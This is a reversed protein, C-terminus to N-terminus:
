IKRSNFPEIAKNYIKSAERKRHDKSSLSVKKKKILDSVFVDLEHMYINFLFPSLVSGQPISYKGEFVTKLDEFLGANLM